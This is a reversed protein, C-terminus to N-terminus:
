AATAARRRQRSLCGRKGSVATGQTRPRMRERHAIRAAAPARHRPSRPHDPRDDDGVGHQDAAPQSRLSGAILRSLWAADFRSSAACPQHAHQKAQIEIDHHDGPRHFHERLLDACPRNAPGARLGREALREIRFDPLEHWGDVGPKAFVDGDVGIGRSRHQHEEVGVADVRRTIGIIMAHAEQQLGTREIDDGAIFAMACLQGIVAVAREIVENRDHVDTQM